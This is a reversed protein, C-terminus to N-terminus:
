RVAAHCFACGTIRGAGEDMGCMDFLSPETRNKPIVLHTYQTYCLEPRSTQKHTAQKSTSSSSHFIRIPHALYTLCTLYTDNRQWLSVKLMSSPPDNGGIWLPPPLPSLHLPTTLFPALLRRSAM